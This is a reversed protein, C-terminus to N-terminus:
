LLQNDFPRIKPSSNMIDKNLFIQNVYQNFGKTYSKNLESLEPSSLIDNPLLSEEFARSTIM